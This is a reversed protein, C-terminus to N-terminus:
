WIEKKDQKNNTQETKAVHGVACTKKAAISMPHGVCRNHVKYATLCTLGGWGDEEEKGEERWLSIHWVQIFLQALSPFYAHFIWSVISLKSSAKESFLQLLSLLFLWPMSLGTLYNNLFDSFIVVSWCLPDLIKQSYNNFGDNQHLYAKQVYKVRLPMNQMNWPKKQMKAFYRINKYSKKHKNSSM